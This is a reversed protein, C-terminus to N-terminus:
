CWGRSHFLSFKGFINREEPVRVKPVERDEKFELDRKFERSPRRFEKNMFGHFKVPEELPETEIVPRQMSVVQREVRAMNPNKGNRMQVKTARGNIFNRM